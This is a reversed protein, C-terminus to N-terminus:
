LYSIDKRLLREWEILILCAVGYCLIDKVDFSSGLLVTAIENNSLHLMGLLNFMQSFEVIVAFAFLYIPLKKTPGRVVGKIFAYLLIVVLVDGVYPRIFTDHVYLAIIVEAIFILLALALYKFNLKM